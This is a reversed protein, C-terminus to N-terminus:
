ARLVRVSPFRTQLRLLDHLESTFVLDGRQAASAMVIADVVTSGPIAALAEGALKALRETMPEVDISAIIRSRLKTQGRWWESVVVAPVTVVAGAAHASLMVIRM